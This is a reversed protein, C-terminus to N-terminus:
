SFWSFVLKGIAFVILACFFAIYKGRHGAIAFGIVGAFVMILLARGVATAWRAAYLDGYAGLVGAGVFYTVLVVINRTDVKKETSWNM